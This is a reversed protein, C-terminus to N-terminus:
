NFKSHVIKSFDINSKESKKNLVKVIQNDTGQITKERKSKIKGSKVDAWFKNVIKDLKEDENTTGLGAVQKYKNLKYHKIELRILKGTTELTKQKQRAKEIDEKIIQYASASVSMKIGHKKQLVELFGTLNETRLTGRWNDGGKTQTFNNNEIHEILDIDKYFKAANKASNGLIIEFGSSTKKFTIGDNIRKETGFDTDSSYESDAVMNLLLKEMFIIDVMANLNPLYNKPMFIGKASTGDAYTFNVLQGKHNKLAQLINGTIIYRKERAKSSEKTLELWNNLSFKSYASKDTEIISRLDTKSEFTSLVLEKKRFGNSCAFIMKINSRAYPNSKNYDIKYGLFICYAGSKIINGKKDTTEIINPYYYLKGATFFYFYTLLENKLDTLDTKNKNIKEDREVEAEKIKQQLKEKYAAIGEEEKIKLLSPMEKIRQVEENFWENRAKIESNIRNQIYLTFDKELKDKKEQPKEDELYDAVAKEIEANTMPKQLNNVECETIYFAENFPNTEMGESAKHSFIVKAELPLNEMELDYEGRQKLDQVYDIYKENIEDYFRKQESVPMIAIRGSTKQSCGQPEHEYEIVVEGKVKKTFKIYNPYDLTEKVFQNSDLWEDVITDGYKNMFDVNNLIKENQKQNSTTNADLSRLKRQLILLLRKEAPVALSMIDYEPLYVQGSRNIRGWMQVETSIDLSPQAVIMVRQKVENRPELSNPINKSVKSVVENPKAQLSIGTAGSENILLCDIENKNFKSALVTVNEVKRPAIKGKGKPLYVVQTKRGTLEGVSYGSKQIKDKIIDIPSIQIGISIKHIEDAIQYYKDQASQSLDQVDLTKYGIPKGQANTKIKGNEDLERYDLTQNLGNKLVVSFDTDIIKSKEALQSIFSEMTNQFTIVVKKGSKLRQIARLAIDEAKLCFLTQNIVNFLKSFAPTNKFGLNSNRTSNVKEYRDKAVEDLAKIEKDVYTQQFEICGRLINAIKDFIEYHFIERNKIGFQKEGSSDAIIYNFTINGLPRERRILNGSEVLNASIIEQLAVGGNEIANVFENLQLGTDKIATKHMYIPMNKAFKAYTASLYVVGKAKSIIQNMFVGVNGAGGAEHAEDLIVINDEILKELFQQKESNFNYKGGVQIDTKKVGQPADAFQSYTALVCDYGSFDFNNVVKNIENKRQENTTALVEYIVNGDFDKIDPSNDSSANNLIFPRFKKKGSYNSTVYELKPTETFTVEGTEEDIKKRRNMAIEMVPKGNDFLPKGNEDTSQIKVVKKIPTLDDTGIDNLDRYIDSFLNARITLFVPVKGIQKAYRMISAAIRGKGIGTQDAVIIGQNKNEINFIALAVGDIQEAALHKYLEDKSHYALKLMVYNDIDGVELQLKDMTKRIEEDMNDPTEVVLSKSKSKPFYEGELSSNILRYVEIGDRYFQYKNWNNLYFQEKDHEYDKNFSIITGKDIQIKNKKIILVDGIELKTNAAYPQIKEWNEKDEFLDLEKLLLESISVKSMEKQNIHLQIREWLEEFSEILKDYNPNYLPPLIKKDYQKRGNILIVRWNTAQGQRSLLKHGSIYLLDEVNFNRYIWFWFGRENGNKYLRENWFTTEYIESGPSGDLILAARGSDKMTSLTHYTIIKDFDTIKHGELEISKKNHAPAHFPPNAIIGDFVSYKYIEPIFKESADNKTVEYFNGFEHLLNNRIEELENVVTQKPKFAVTLLGNGATPDFTLVHNTRNGIVYTGLAFAIPLPTSFQNFISVRSSRYNIVLQNNYNEILKQYINSKSLNSNVIEKALQFQAIEYLEKAIDDSIGMDKSLAFFDAQKNTKNWHKVDSIFQEYNSM